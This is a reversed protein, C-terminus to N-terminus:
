NGASITSPKLMMNQYLRNRQERSEYVKNIFGQSSMNDLSNSRPTQGVTIRKGTVDTYTARQPDGAEEEGYAGFFGNYAAQVESVELNYDLATKRIAADVSAFDAGMEGSKYVSISDVLEAQLNSARGGGSGGGGSSRSSMQNYVNNIQAQKYQIDLEAMRQNNRYTPSARVASVASEWGGELSIDADPYQQALNSVLNRTESEIAADIAYVEGLLMFPEIDYEEAVRKIYDAAQQPDEYNSWNKYAVNSLSASRDKQRNYAYEDKTLQLREEQLSLNYMQTILNRRQNDVQQIQTMTKEFLAFQNQENSQVAETILGNRQVELDILKQQGEREVSTVLNAAQNPTYRALGTSLSVTEQGRVAARNTNELAEARRDMSANIQDLQQDLHRDFTNKYSNYFNQIQGKEAEINNFEGQMLDLFSSGTGGGAGTDQILAAQDAAIQNNPNTPSQTRSFNGNADASYGAATLKKLASQLTRIRETADGSDTVASRAGSSIAPVSAQQTQMPAPSSSTTRPRMVNRTNSTSTGAVEGGGTHATLKKIGSKLTAATLKGAISKLMKQRETQAM